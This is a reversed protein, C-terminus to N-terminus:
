YFKAYHTGGNVDVGDAFGYGNTCFEHEVDGLGGISAAQRLSRARWLGSGLNIIFQCRVQSLLVM